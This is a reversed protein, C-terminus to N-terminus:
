CSSAVRKEEVLFWIRDTRGAAPGFVLRAQIRHRPGDDGGTPVLKGTSQYRYVGRSGDVCSTLRIEPREGTLKLYTVVTSRVYVDGTLYWGNSRLFDIEKVGATLWAGGNSARVLDARTARRPDRMAAGVATRAIAYSKKAATIASQEEV